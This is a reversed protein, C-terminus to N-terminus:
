VCLKTVFLPPILVNQTSSIKKILLYRCVEIGKERILLVAIFTKGAEPKLCAITNRLKASEYLEVQFFVVLSM